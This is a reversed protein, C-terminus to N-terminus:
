SVMRATPSAAAVYAVMTMQGSLTIFCKLDGALIKWQLLRLEKLVGIVLAVVQRFM